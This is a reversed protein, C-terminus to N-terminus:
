RPTGACPKAPAKTEDLAGIEIRLSATRERRVDFRLAQEFDARAGAVDGHVHRLRGRNEFAYANSADLELSREVDTSAGDLDGLHLRAYARSSLAFSSTPNLEIARTCDQVGGEYDGSLGRFYGRGCWPAWSRETPAVALLDAARRYDARAGDEDGMLRRLSGRCELYRLNKPALEIARSYNALADEYRSGLENALGREFILLPDDPRREPARNSVTLPLSGDGRESSVAPAREQELPPCPPRGRVSMSPLTWVGTVLLGVLVGVGGAVLTVLQRRVSGSPREREIKGCGLTPCAELASFCERDFRARCRM